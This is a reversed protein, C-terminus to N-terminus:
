RWSAAEAQLARLDTKGSALTPWDQRWFIRRPTRLAGLKQRAAKLIAQEQTADGMLVARLVHGRMVDPVALVVAREVGPLGQLFREIEEPFVNQGAITVMRGARGRLILGQDTVAGVEGVSLWGDRWRAAGRDEGAYDLFLYPSRVWVEGTRGDPVTQGGSDCIQLEVGPYPRGVTDPDDESGSLTIFSTEAAGYFERVEARPAVGEVAHRLAADLKSGGILVMRLKPWFAGCAVMQALQVPTAYIVEIGRVAVAKGMQDPRLGDLLHVDAGLCMGELAAYLALSQSLRGPVAVRVGPGIGFQVANVAFSALWSAQTRVVRRAQGLSGGTLTEFCGPGAEPTGAGGIRFARGQGSLVAALAAGGPRDEWLPAFAASLSVDVGDPGILRAADQAQFWPNNGKGVSGALRM